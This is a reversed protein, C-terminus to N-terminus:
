SETVRTHVSNIMKSLCVQCGLSEPISQLSITQYYEFAFLCVKNGFLLHLVHFEVKQGTLM